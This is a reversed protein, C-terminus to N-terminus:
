EFFEKLALYEANRIIEESSNIAHLIIHDAIDPHSRLIFNKVQRVKTPEGLNRLLSIIEERIIPSIIDTKRRRPEVYKELLSLAVNDDENLMHFPPILFDYEYEFFEDIEYIGSGLYTRLKKSRSKHRLRKITKEKIQRARERTLSFFEGIENLTLAYERDLGFYLDIVHIEQKELSSKAFEIEMKLSEIDSESEIPPNSPIQELLKESYQHIWVPIISNLDSGLNLPDVETLPNYSRVAPFQTVLGINDILVNKHYEIVQEYINAPYRIISAHNAVLSKLNWHILQRLYAKFGGNSNIDFEKISQMLALNSFLILDMIEMGSDKQTLVEEIVVYQNSLELKHFAAIDGDYNRELLEREKDISLPKRLPGIDKLYLKVFITTSEQASIEM